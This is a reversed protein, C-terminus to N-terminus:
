NICKIVLSVNQDGDKIKVTIADGGFGSFSILRFRAYLNREFDLHTRGFNNRDELLYPRIAAMKLIALQGKRLM